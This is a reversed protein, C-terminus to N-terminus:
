DLRIKTYCFPFIDSKPHLSNIPITIDLNKISTQSFITNRVDSFLASFAFLNKFGFFVRNECVGHM